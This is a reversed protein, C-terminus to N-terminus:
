DVANNLVVNGIKLLENDLAAIRQASSAPTELAVRLVSEVGSVNAVVNQVCSVSVLVGPVPVGYMTGAVALGDSWSRLAARIERRKVQTTDGTYGVYVNIVRETAYGTIPILKMTLDGPAGVLWLHVKGTLLDVTSTYQAAELTQNRNQGLLLATGPDLGPLITLEGSGLFLRFSWAALPFVPLQAEYLGITGGGPLPDTEVGNRDVEYVYDPQPPTFLEISSSPTLDNIPTAMNVKDVGYVSDLTRVLDSYVLTDGPRLANVTSAITQQLLLGTDHVSFGSFVKFRLSLPVPKAEGDLIQVYDTGVAKTQLYAQLSQKLQPSLPVLGGGSGTTWAYISVVNGELLANETRVTSRAYAVSGYQPDSYLSAMTQYDDLTVARNNTRVFYPINARAEELTEADRGGQGSSTNNTLNITVPSSTSQILGTITTNISGIPINGDLGGGVRYTVSIVAETPVMMGFSNDGFQAITEGTAFTKVIFAPEDGQAGALSEVEHWVEGNVLVAVSHEIVPLHSLRVAFDPAVAQPATFSDTVTQGQVLQIRRDYVVARTVGTEGLYASDLIMRNNSVAGPAAEVAAVLYETVGDQGNEDRTVFVQGPQVFQTLDIASDALDVITSGLAVECLTALTNPGALGPAIEVVTEKPSLESPEIYYDKTVEFPIANEDATRILTGKAITVVASQTSTMAAECSVVAPTPGRLEYGVNEGIRVASERLTMSGVFMEGAVRNILFAITATSWAILDILVIGFNSSLFDNWVQPFRDRIRQILADKHSQYDFKLYRLTNETM